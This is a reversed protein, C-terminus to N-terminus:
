GAGAPPGKRKDSQLFAHIDAHDNQGPRNFKWGAEGKRIGPSTHYFSFPGLPPSERNIAMDTPTDM